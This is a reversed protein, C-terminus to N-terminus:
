YTFKKLKIIKPSIVLKPDPGRLTGEAVYNRQILKLRGDLAIMDETVEYCNSIGSCDRAFYQVYLKETAPVSASFEAASNELDLDTLNSVGVLEPIQNISLSTYAANSTKTGLTGVVALMDTKGLTVTESIQYDADSSDGLCNMPRYICADGVLDVSLLLSEFSSGAADVQSWKAKVASVLDEVSQNLDLESVASRVDRQPIAFPEPIFTDNTDRIRLAALPLDKRWQEGAKEDTPMAYRILTLFDDAAEDLGLRAFSPSVPITFIHRKDQVGTKMLAETIKQGLNADSTIIFYRQEDFAKGSDQKMVVHNISDGVSSFVLPRTPNPSNMFLVSKMFDDSLSQYLSDEFNLEGKRTFVYPQVGLYRAEPPMQGMIVLAERHDLRHTWAQGSAVPGLLQDMTEDKHEDSWLPLTPIIYPATPNNGLCHGISKVAYSCDAITFLHFDGRLSQFGGANMDAELAEVKEELWSPLKHPEIQEEAQANVTFFMSSGVILSSMKKIYSKKM